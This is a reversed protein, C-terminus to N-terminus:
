KIVNISATLVPIDQLSFLCWLNVKCIIRRIVNFSAIVLIVLRYPYDVRGYVLNSGTVEFGLDSVDSSELSKQFSKLPPPPSPLIIFYFKFLTVVPFNEELRYFSTMM